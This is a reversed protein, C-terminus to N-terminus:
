FLIPINIVYSSFILNYDYIYNTIECKILNFICEDARLYHSLTNFEFFFFFTPADPVSWYNRKACTLFICIVSKCYKYGNNYYIVSIPRWMVNRVSM